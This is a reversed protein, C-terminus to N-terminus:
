FLWTAKLPLQKRSGQNCFCFCFFFFFLSLSLPPFLFFPSRTLIRASAGLPSIMSEATLIISRFRADRHRGPLLAMWDRPVGALFRSLPVRWSGGVEEVAVTYGRRPPDRERDAVPWKISANTEVNEREMWGRNAIAQFISWGRSGTGRFLLERANNDLRRDLSSGFIDRFNRSFNAFHPCTELFFFFIRFIRCIKSEFPFSRSYLWHFFFFHFKWRFETFNGRTFYAAILKIGIDSLNSNLPLIPNSIPVFNPKTVCGKGSRRRFQLSCPFPPSLLRMSRSAFGRLCGRCHVGMRPPDRRYIRWRSESPM